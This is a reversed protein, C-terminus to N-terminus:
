PLNSRIQLNLAGRAGGVALSVMSIETSSVGGLETAVWTESARADVPARQVAGAWAPLDTTAADFGFWTADLRMIRQAGAGKLVVLAVRTRCEWNSLGDATRWPGGCSYDHGTSREVDLLIASLGSRPLGDFSPPSPIPTEHNADPGITDPLTSFLIGALVVNAVIPILIFM